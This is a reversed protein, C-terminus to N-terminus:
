RAVAQNVTQEFRILFFLLLNEAQAKRLLWWSKYHDSMDDLQESQALLLQYTEWPQSNLEHEM